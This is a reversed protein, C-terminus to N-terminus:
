NLNPCTALYQSLKVSIGHAYQKLSNIGYGYNLIIVKTVTIVNLNICDYKNVM